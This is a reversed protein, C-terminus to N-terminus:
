VSGVNRPDGSLIPSPKFGNVTLYGMWGLERATMEAQLVQGRDIARRFRGQASRQSSRVYTRMCCTAWGRENLNRQAGKSCGSRDEDGM